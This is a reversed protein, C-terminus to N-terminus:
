APAPPLDHILKIGANIDNRANASGRRPIKRHLGSRESMGGCIGRERESHCDFQYVVQPRAQSACKIPVLDPSEGEAVQPGGDSPRIRHCM